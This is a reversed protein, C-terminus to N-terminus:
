PGCRVFSACPSTEAASSRHARSADSRDVHDIGGLEIRHWDRKIKDKDKATGISM